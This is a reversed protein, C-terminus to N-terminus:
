PQAPQSVVEITFTVQDSYDGAYQPNEAEFSLTSTQKETSTGFTAVVDGSSIPTASGDVKVTYPLEYTADAATKLKFSGTLKVQVQQGELLRVNEATITETKAYDGTDTVKDLTVTAPITVTYAPEVKFEVTTTKTEAWAMVPLSLVLTLALLARLLKKM